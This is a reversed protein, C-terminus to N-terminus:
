GQRDHPDAPREHEPAEEETLHHVGGEGRPPPLMGAAAETTPWPAVTCYQILINCSFTIHFNSISIDFLLMQRDHHDPPGEHTVAEEPPYHVGGGGGGGEGRPPSLMGAAAETIPRAVTCYQILINCSFTIHFNSISIEFLLM